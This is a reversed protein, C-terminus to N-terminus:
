APSKAKPADPKADDSKAKPTIKVTTKPLAKKGRLTYTAEFTTGDKRVLTLSPKKTRPHYTVTWDKHKEAESLAKKLLSGPLWASPRKKLEPDLKGERAQAFFDKADTFKMNKVERSRALFAMLTEVTIQDYLDRTPTTKQALWWTDFEKQLATIKRGFRRAFAVSRNKGAVVDSIYAALKKRYLGDKAHVFFQMMAWVQDYYAVSSAQNWQAHSMSIMSAFPIFERNRIRRQVTQLRGKRTYTMNGKKFTEGDNVVGPVLRDGTWIAEGFYEALGENIWIPVRQRGRDIVIHVFQHFGEHQIVHWITEWPFTKTDATARLDRGTYVGVSRSLAGGLSRQYNVYQGYLYFPMKKTIKGSFGKTRQHYQEAMANIRAVSELVQEMPLDTYVLHYRGVYKKMGPLRPAGVAGWACAPWSASLLIGAWLILTAQRPFRHRIPKLVPMTM